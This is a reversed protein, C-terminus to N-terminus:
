GVDAKSDQGQCEKRVGNKMIEQNAIKEWTYPGTKYYFFNLYAQKETNDTVHIIGTS